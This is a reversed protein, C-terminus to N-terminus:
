RAKIGNPNLTGAPRQIFIATLLIALIVGLSTNTIFGLVVYVNRLVTTRDSTLNANIFIDPVWAYVVAFIISHLILLGMASLVVLSVRPYKKWRVIAFIMCALITLLSPLQELVNKLLEIIKTSAGM